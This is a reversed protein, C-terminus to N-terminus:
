NRYTQFDSYILFQVTKKAGAWEKKRKEPSAWASAKEEGVPASAHWQHGQM